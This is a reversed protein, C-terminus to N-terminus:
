GKKRYSKKRYNGKRGSSNGGGGTRVNWEPGKGLSPPPEMKPIESEILKEIKALRPMDRPNVFTIAEGKADMRATRGARHVYDEADQPVDYNLVLNIMSIDIGRSMLDTAVLIRTRKSRFGGLVEERERQDLDSSIGRAEHGEKRLSRVIEGVKSKLSTFVIISAYDPHVRVLYKLMDTKQEEYVLFAGHSVGDAPKSVALSIEEPDTLIQKALNRIEQPMTASFMLTQRKKPLYSFIQKLDDIFGMDLMRDAEDLVLHELSSFDAYGMQMHSLLKGPTAIIIEAGKRLAEKQAIFANVDGGGYIAISGIDMFYSLGQIQQEIQIALERTPVIVLTNVGREERGILKELIPLVFAATKGTGTQACAILDRDNLIVPIAQEQVPTAETFGMYDMAELLSPALQLEDFTM